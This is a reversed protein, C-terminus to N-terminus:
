SFFNIKPTSKEHKLVMKLSKMVNESMVFCKLNYIFSFGCNRSPVTAVFILPLHIYWPVWMQILVM